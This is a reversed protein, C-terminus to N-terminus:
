FRFIRKSKLVGATAARSVGWPDYAVHGAGDGVVFHGGVEPHYFYLIEAEDRGCRYDPTEHKGGYKAGWGLWKLLGSPDQIYCQSTMFGQQIAGFYIEGNIKQTTLSYNTYKNMLFLLSMYYCGHEKIPVRLRRDRQLIM